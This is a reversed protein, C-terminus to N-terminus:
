IIHGEGLSERGEGENGFFVFFSFSSLCLAGHVAVLSCHKFSFKIEDKRNVVLFFRLFVFLSPVLDIM